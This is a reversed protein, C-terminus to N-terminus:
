QLLWSGDDQRCATGHVDEDPQGGVEAELRFERCTSGDAVSTRLPEVAFSNGSAPNHWRTAQNTDLAQATMRRDSDDMTRGIHGGIMTGAVTGVIIAATRGSGDGVQSGLVGGIVGGIIQGEQEHTMTECGVILTATLLTALLKSIRM